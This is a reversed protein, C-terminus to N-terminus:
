AGEENEFRKWNVILVQSLDSDNALQKEIHFLVEHSHIPQTLAVEARRIVPDNKTIFWICYRNM